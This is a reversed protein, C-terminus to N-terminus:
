PDYYVYRANTVYPWYKPDLHCLPHYRITLQKGAALVKECAAEIHPRLEAPHVAVEKVHGKWEYHPLFGLMIYHYFSDGFQLENDVIDSLQRYNLHQLSTNVRYKIDNDQMWAKLGQQKIYAGPHGLSEDLIGGVGHTSLHFHDIGAEHLRAYTKMAGTGNTIISTALGLDNCYETLEVIHPYLTPEGYGIYVIHDIGKTKAFTVDAKLKDLDIDIGAHFNPNRLYFCQKCTCNCKWTVEIGARTCPKM